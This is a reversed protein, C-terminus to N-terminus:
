VKWEDDFEMLFIPFNKVSAKSDRRKIEEIHVAMTLDILWERVIELLDLTYRLLCDETIHYFSDEGM